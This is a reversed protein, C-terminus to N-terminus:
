NSVTHFITGKSYRAWHKALDNDSLRTLLDKRPSSSGDSEDLGIGFELLGMSTLIFRNHMDARNWRCFSLSLGSPMHPKLYADLRRKFEKEDWKDSVHYELRNIPFGNSRRSLIQLFGILPNRFRKEQPDFHPDIFMIQTSLNLLPAVERAMDSAIRVIEKSPPCQWLLKSEDIDDGSLLCSAVDDSCNKAVIAHFMLRQHEKKANDIWSRKDDWLIKPRRFMKYKVISRLAEKMKLTEVQGSGSLRIAEFVSREWRRPFESILRGNEAGCQDKFYRIDKWNDLLTPELAYEFIM